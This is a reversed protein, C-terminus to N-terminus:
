RSATARSEIAELMENVFDSRLVCGGAGESRGELSVTSGGRSEKAQIELVMRGGPAAASAGTDAGAAACSVRDAAPRPGWNGALPMPVSLLKGGPEDATAVPIGYDKFAAAAASVVATPTANVQRVFEQASPAPGVASGRSCATGLLALVSATVLCRHIM